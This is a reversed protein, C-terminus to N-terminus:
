SETALKTRPQMMSHGPMRADWKSKVDESSPQVAEWATSCNKEWKIPTPPRRKAPCIGWHQMQARGFTSVCHFARQSM